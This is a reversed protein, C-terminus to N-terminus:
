FSLYDYSQYIQLVNMLMMRLAIFLNMETFCNANPSETVSGIFSALM